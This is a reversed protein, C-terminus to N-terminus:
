LESVEELFESIFPWNEHGLFNLIVPYGKWTYKRNRETRPRFDDSYIDIKQTTGDFEHRHPKFHWPANPNFLDQHTSHYMIRLPSNLDSCRYNFFTTLGYEPPFEGSTSTRKQIEVTFDKLTVFKIDHYIIIGSEGRTSTVRYKNEGSKIMWSYSELVDSHIQLHKDLEFWRGHKKGSSIM